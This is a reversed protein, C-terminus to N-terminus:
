RRRGAAILVGGALALLWFWTATEGCNGSLNAACPNPLVVYNKEWTYCHKM